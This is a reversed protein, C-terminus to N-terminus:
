EVYVTRTDSWALKMRHVRASLWQAGCHVGPLTGASQFGAAALLILLTLVLMLRRGNMASRQGLNCLVTPLRTGTSEFREVAQGVKM